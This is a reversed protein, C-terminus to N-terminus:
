RISRPVVNGKGVVLPLFSACTIAPSVHGGIIDLVRRSRGDQLTSSLWRGFSGWRSDTASLVLADKTLVNPPLIAQSCSKEDWSRGYVFARPCFVRRPCFEDLMVKLQIYRTDGPDPYTRCPHSRARTRTREATTQQSCRWFVSAPAPGSAAQAQRLYTHPM